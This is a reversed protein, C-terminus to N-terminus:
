TKSSLDLAILTVCGLTKDLIFLSISIMLLVEDIFILYYSELKYYFNIIPIFLNFTIINFYISNIVDLNKISKKKTIALNIYKLIQSDKNNEIYNPIRKEIHNYFFYGFILLLYNSFGIFKICFISIFLYYLKM